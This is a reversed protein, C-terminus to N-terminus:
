EKGTKSIQRYVFTVALGFLIWGAIMNFWNFSLAPFLQDLIIVSAPNILNGDPRIIALVLGIILHLSGFTGVCYLVARLLHNKEPNISNPLKM